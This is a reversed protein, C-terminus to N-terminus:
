SPDRRDEVLVVESRPTVRGLLQELALVIGDGLLLGLQLVGAVQLADVFVETLQGLLLDVEQRDSRPRVEIEGARREPRQRRALEDLLLDEVPGVGILLSRLVFISALVGALPVRVPRQRLHAQQGVLHGVLQERDGTLALEVLEVKVLEEGGGARARACLELVLAVNLLPEVDDTAGVRRRLHVVELEAALARRERVRVHPQQLVEPM